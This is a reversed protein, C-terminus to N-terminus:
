CSWCSGTHLRRKATPSRDWATEYVELRFSIRVRYWFSELRRSLPDERRSMMLKPKATALPHLRQRPSICPCGAARTTNPKPPIEIRVSACGSISVGTKKAAPLMLSSGLNGARGISGVTTRPVKNHSEITALSTIRDCGRLIGFTYQKYIGKNNM